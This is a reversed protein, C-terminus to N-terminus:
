REDFIFEKENLIKGKIDFCIKKGVESRYTANKVNVKYTMGTVFVDFSNGRIKLGKLSIKPSFSPPAPNIAVQGEINVQVGFMGFIISQAVSIGGIANQLPTDRRYDIASAVMSDGWYPLYKGWWLIRRLINEAYKPKSAKYLREIIQPPFCTCIGGGGNDIDYQDYAMDQKSMSHLGYESLFEKENLHELLGEQQQKDLVGSGILKFMQVTYRTDKQWNKDFHHFWKIKKDWMKKKILVKLQEARTDLCSDSMGIIECM